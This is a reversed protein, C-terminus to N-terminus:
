AADGEATTAAATTVAEATTVAATTVEASPEEGTTSQADATTVATTAAPAATTQVATTAEQSPATMKDAATIVAAVDIYITSNKDADMNVGKEDRFFNKYNKACDEVTYSERLSSTAYLIKESGTSNTYKISFYYNLIDTGDAAKKGSKVGICGISNVTINQEKNYFNAFLKYYVAAAKQAGDVAAKISKINETLQAFEPYSAGQADGALQLGAVIVDYRNLMDSYKVNYTKKQSQVCDESLSPIAYPIFVNKVYDTYKASDYTNDPFTKYSSDIIMATKWFLESDKNQVAQKCTEIGSDITKTLEEQKVLKDYQARAQQLKDYKSVEAKQEDSLAAYADEAAKIADGSSTSVTGIARILSNVNKAEKSKCATFCLVVALLVAAAALIKKTM